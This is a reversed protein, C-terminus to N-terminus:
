HLTLMSLRLDCYLMSKVMAYLFNPLLFPLRLLLIVLVLLLLRLLLPRQQQQRQDINRNRKVVKILRSQKANRSRRRMMGAREGAGRKMVQGVKGVKGGKWVRSNMTQQDKWQWVVWLSLSSCCVQETTATARNSQKQGLKRAIRKAMHKNHGKNNNYKTCTFKDMPKIGERTWASSLCSGRSM